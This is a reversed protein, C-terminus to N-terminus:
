LVMCMNSMYKMEVQKKLTQHRQHYHFQHTTAVKPFSRLAVCHSHLIIIRVEARPDGVHLAFFGEYNDREPHCNFGDGGRGKSGLLLM